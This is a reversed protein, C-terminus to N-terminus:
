ILTEKNNFYLVSGRQLLNYRKSQKLQVPDSSSLGNYKQTINVKSQLNRFSVFDTIAFESKNILLPDVLFSDSLCIITYHNRQYNPTIIAEYKQKKNIEIKFYCKEGGFPMFLEDKDLIGADDEVDIDIAFSWGPALYKMNQKYFANEKSTENEGKENGVMSFDKV